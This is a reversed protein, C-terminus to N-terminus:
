ELQLVVEIQISIPYTSLDSYMIVKKCKKVCKALHTDSLFINEVFAACLMATLQHQDEGAYNNKTEPGSWINTRGLSNIHKSIPEGRRRSSPNTETPLCRMHQVM